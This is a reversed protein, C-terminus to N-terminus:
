SHFLFDDCEGFVLIIKLQRGKLLVRTDVASRKEGGTKKGQHWRVPYFSITEFCQSVSSICCYYRSIRKASDMKWVEAFVVVRSAVVKSEVSAMSWISSINSYKGAIGEGIGEDGGSYGSPLSENGSPVTRGSLETGGEKVNTKVGYMKNMDNVM